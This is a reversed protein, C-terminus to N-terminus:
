GRGPLKPEPRGIAPDLRILRSRIASPQRGFTEALTTVDHGARHAALLEADALPTWREYAHPHQRRVDAVRYTQGPEAPPEVTDRRGLVNALRDIAAAVALLAETQALGILVAPDNQRGRSARDAHDRAMAAHERDDM